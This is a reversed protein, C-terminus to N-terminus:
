AIKHRLRTLRVNKAEYVRTWSAADDLVTNAPGGATAAGVYSVGRPHLVFRRRSILHDEGVLSV